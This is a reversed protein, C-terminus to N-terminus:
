FGMDRLQTVIQMYFDVIAQREEPKGYLAIIQLHNLEGPIQGQYVGWHSSAASVMGDTDQEGSRLSLRYFPYVPRANRKSATSSYSQYYVEPHDPTRQNFAVMSRDTLDRAAGLIDPKEDRRLRFLGNLLAGCTNAVWRPAKLITASLRSGHHPTSLTTLSAVRTHMGLQSIMYRADLGGKSHAILNVKQCGEKKCFAEIERQLQRANNEINGVSDQGTVHVRVHQKELADPIIGFAKSFRTDKAVLGHVLVIPYKTYHEM